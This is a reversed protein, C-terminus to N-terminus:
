KDHGNANGKGNGNGNNGNSNKTKVKKWSKSKHDYVSAEDVGDTTITGTVLAPTGDSALNKSQLYITIDSETATVSVTYDSTQMASYGVFSGEGGGASIPRKSYAIAHSTIENLTNMAATELHEDYYSNFLNIGVVIAIGAIIIGLSILLLQQTGM